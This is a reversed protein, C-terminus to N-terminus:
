LTASIAAIATDADFGSGELRVFLEEIDQEGAAILKSAQKMALDLSRRKSIVFSVQCRNSSRLSARLKRVESM